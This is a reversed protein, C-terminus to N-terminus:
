EGSIFKGKAGLIKDVAEPDMMAMGAGKAAEKRALSPFVSATERGLVEQSRARPVGTADGRPRSTRATALRLRSAAGPLGRDRGGRRSLPPRAGTGSSVERDFVEEEKKLRVMDM